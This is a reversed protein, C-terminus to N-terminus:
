APAPTLAPAPALATAPALAQTAAPAEAAGSGLVSAATSEPVLESGGGCAALTFLAALALYSKHLIAM